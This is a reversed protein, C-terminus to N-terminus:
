QHWVPPHSESWLGAEELQAALALLPVDSRQRGVLQIGHPLGAEDLHSPLSIAPQGTLNVWPTYCSWALMRDLVQEVGDALFHGVPVPPGNTTPTLAVDFDDLASLFRGAFRALVAQGQMVDGGSLGLGRELLYRTFPQLLHQRDEPVLAPVGTAISSTFWTTLAQFTPADHDAPVPIEHVEHGLERLLGAARSVARVAEPHPDVDELGTGTWVAVRLPAPAGAGSPDALSETPRWGHLDAAPPHAMVELLLAADEVTRAVPGETGTSFFGAAPAASVLGRSPKVGVLHCTSAPTRISGAGESAHAVPLLGAAVATASGGSSGSSYRTTDFPTVAPRDTVANETYCTPGFEPANTKGVLVAGARRLLGVTWADHPPTFDRLAASGLTTRVGATPHLDKIGIPLGCLPGGEGRALQEDARGAEELALESTVTVFAGLEAAHRDVRTLYHTTLERSSLTRARLARVQQVATLDHLETM